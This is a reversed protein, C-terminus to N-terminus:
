LEIGVSFRQIDTADFDKKFFERITKVCAERFASLHTGGQTTFQGNVFSYYEQGYQNTHTLAM